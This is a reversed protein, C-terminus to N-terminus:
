SEAIRDLITEADAGDSEIRLAESAGCVEYIRRFWETPFSAPANHVFLKGPATLAAVTCLDGARRVQPIFLHEAWAADDEYKFQAMDIITHAVDGALGRALLCWLGAMGLGFVRVTYTRTQLAAIGNLVDQVRLATDTRNFTFFHGVSEDRRLLELEGTGFTDIALVMMQRELLGAVLPGLEDGAMLGAKGHPHVVLAGGTAGEPVFLLAPMREGVRNQGIILRELRYDEHEEVRVMEVQLDDPHPQVANLAYQYAIGMVERYTHLTAADTPQLSQIQAKADRILNSVLQEATVAGAPPKSDPLVRMEEPPPVEFPQEELQERDEIGHLWKGFWGYVAERSERNYNHPADVQVTAVKDTAEYLRYISQVAPFEVEPTNRTWDGTASVMLLPRPVMMAGFDVNYCDLRLNPINECLCGGQMHASIMNVPAAVKVRKDIAMLMFTQTGGGSAGTCAIRHPDVEPLSCLYDVVRISNWLQLGMLSIGWLYDHASTFFAVHPRDLPVGSLHHQSDNYGIMDYAFAVNGQLAFNICRGPISGLESNELRGHVWHGHPCAIGPLPGQRNRPRYLNGTVYFGPLSEFYVNEIVYEDFEVRGTVQPYLPGKEPMPWLGASVLIRRRLHEARAEWSQRTPYDPFTFTDDSRRIRTRADKPIFVRTWDTSQNM